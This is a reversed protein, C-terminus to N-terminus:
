PSGTAGLDLTEIAPLALADSGAECREYAHAAAPKEAASADHDGAAIETICDCYARHRSATDDDACREVQRAVAWRRYAPQCDLAPYDVAFVCSCLDADRELDIATTCLTKMYADQARAREDFDRAGGLVSGSLWPLLWVIVVAAVVAAVLVGIVLQPMRRRPPDEIDALM